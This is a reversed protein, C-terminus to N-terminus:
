IFYGTIIKTLICIYSSCNEPCVTAVQNTYESHLRKQTHIIQQWRTTDTGLVAQTEPFDMRSLFTKNIITDNFTPNLVMVEDM